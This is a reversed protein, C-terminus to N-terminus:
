DPNQVPDGIPAAYADLILADVNDGTLGKMFEVLDSQERTDLNLPRILPSQLENPVGGENYFTVVEDLTSFEGNHMYPATLAVNRLTPTRYKWRDAPDETVEYRGVDAARKEGVTAIIEPDVDIFVGPALTVRRPESRTGVANLYGLGTNHLGNDTFLAHDQGITHCGACGAKGVFLKFGRRAPADLASPDKGYYWRDFPSNASVLARQYSALAMGLTEMGVTRGEFAKEFLGDYDPFSRIKELLYGISPNAMENRALFPGWVQQELNEERGDHFLQRIYAVNYLTPANRRVSRGEVGVAAAMENSTFGQEPIHCMACSFTDNISLRRDFFLKRGLEIKAITVPNDAPQPVTPLGLPPTRILELLDMPKGKRHTLALSDTRYDPSEYGEKGDGPRSHVTSAAEATVVRQGAEPEMLLTRVDNVLLDAHLFPVSYINRIRRKSDILFVKLLHAYDLTQGTDTDILKQIDQGYDDLIPQLAEESRTTVFRWDGKSGAYRFNDAYLQMVGPTDREPDFSLSVLRLGEELEKDEQMRSKLQHFVFSSLPCGNLDSCRSFMFGLLVVRDGLLDHLRISGGAPNLLDGDGATGLPPLDYSGPAPLEYELPGYGPAPTVGSTDASIDHAQLLLVSCFLLVRIRRCRRHFRIVNSHLARSALTGSVPTRRFPGACGDRM